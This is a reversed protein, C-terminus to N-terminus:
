CSAGDSLGRIELVCVSEDVCAIDDAAFKKLIGCGSIEGILSKKYKKIIKYKEQARDGFALLSQM